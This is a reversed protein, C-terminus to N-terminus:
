TKLLAIQERWFTARPHHPTLALLFSFITNIPASQEKISLTGARFESQQVLRDVAEELARLERERDLKMGVIHFEEDYIGGPASGFGQLKKM